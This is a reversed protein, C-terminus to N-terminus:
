QLGGTISPLRPGSNATESTDFGQVNRCNEWGQRLATMKASKKPLLSGASDSFLLEHLLRRIQKTALFTLGASTPGDANDHLLVTRMPAYRIREAEPTFKGHLTNATHQEVEKLFPRWNANVPENPDATSSLLTSIRKIKRPLNTGTLHFIYPTFVETDGIFGSGSAFLNQSLSFVQPCTRSFSPARKKSFSSASSSPYSSTSTSRAVNGLGSLTRNRNGSLSATCPEDKEVYCVWADFGNQDHGFPLHHMWRLYHLMTTISKRSSRVLFFGNNVSASEWHESIVFDSAYPFSPDKFMPGNFINPSKTKGSSTMSTKKSTSSFEQQQQDLAKWQALVREDHNALGHSSEVALFLDLSQAYDPDAYVGGRITHGWDVGLTGYAARLLYVTPDRLYLIDMDTVVFDVGLRMLLLAPLNKGMMANDIPMWSSNDLSLTLCLLNLSSQTGGAKREDRLRKQIRRCENYGPVPELPVDLSDRLDATYPAEFIMIYHTVGSKMLHHLFSRAAGASAFDGFAFSFYLVHRGRIFNSGRLFHDIYQLLFIHELRLQLTRRNPLFPLQPAQEQEPFENGAGSDQEVADELSNVKNIMYKERRAAYYVQVRSQHQDFVRTATERHIERWLKVHDSDSLYLGSGDSGSTTTSGDSTSSFKAVM